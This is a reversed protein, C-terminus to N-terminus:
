QKDGRMKDALDRFTACWALIREERPRPDIAPDAGEESAMDARITIRWAEVEEATHLGAEIWVRTVLDFDRAFRRVDNALHAPIPVPKSM